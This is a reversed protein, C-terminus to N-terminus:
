LLSWTKKRFERNEWCNWLGEGSVVPKAAPSAVRKLSAPSESSGSDMSTSKRIPGSILKVYSKPFWGKQGQVEGFWW